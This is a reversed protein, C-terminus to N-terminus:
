KNLNSSDSRLKKFDVLDVLDVLDVKRFKPKNLKPKNDRINKTVNKDFDIQSM